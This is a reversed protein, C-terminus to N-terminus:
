ADGGPASWPADADIACRVCVFGDTCLCAAECAPCDYLNGPEHPYDAHRPHDREWDDAAEVLTWVVEAETRGKADNFDYATAFGEGGARVPFRDSLYRDLYAVAAEFEAFGPDDFHQAPADVPGGYCVLGIAGVLCAPPTFVVATGDYYAGQVWGHRDLYTAAARLITSVPVTVRGAWTPVVADTGVPAGACIGCTSWPSPGFSYTVGCVECGDYRCAEDASDAVVDIPLTVCDPCLLEDWSRLVPVSDGCALCPSPEVPVTWPRQQDVWQDVDDVSHRDQDIPGTYGAERLDFFRRDADTESKGDVRRATPENPGSVRLQTPHM